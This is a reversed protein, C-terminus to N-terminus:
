KRRKRTGITKQQGVPELESNLEAEYARWEFRSLNETLGNKFHSNINNVLTRYAQLEIDSDSHSLAELLLARMALIDRSVKTAETLRQRAYQVAEDFSMRSQAM